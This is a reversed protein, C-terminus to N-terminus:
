RADRKSDLLRVLEEVRYGGLASDIDPAGRGLASRAAQFARAASPKDGSAELALGLDVHAIPDDPELYACKRFATVAARYDGAAAAAQGTRALEIPSVSSAAVTSELVRIRTARSRRAEGSRSGLMPRRGLDTGGGSEPSEASLPVRPPGAGRRRHYEFADGIKVPEFLDTVQWITEAYGLFLFAGAPLQEALRTLFATAQVPSFYILVNRCFVVQCRSLYDPLPDTVLNHRRASVRSRVAPRVEWDAPGAILHRARRAPSLGTLESGRYRAAATRALANTSVDTAIVSGATGQEELVMALSYAEQGNSCAASWITVPRALGPLVHQALAEFQGPHRFFATEQVTIRDFLSQRAAPDADLTGVYASPDQHRSAAEDRLCRRLRGLMTPDPRMGLHRHLVEAARDVTGSAVEAGTM